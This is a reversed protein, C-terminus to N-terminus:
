KKKKKKKITKKKVAKKAVKKVVKKKVAKKVVERVPKKLKKRKPKKKAEKKAQDIGAKIAKASSKKMTKEAMVEQLMVLVNKADESSSIIEAATVVGGNEAEEEEKGQREILDKLYGFKAENSAIEHISLLYKTLNETIEHSTRYFAMLELPSLQSAVEPTMVRQEIVNLVESIRALRLRATAAYQFIATEAHLLGEAAVGEFEEPLPLPMDDVAKSLPKIDEVIFMLEGSTDITEELPKKKGRRKKVKKDEPKDLDKDKAM